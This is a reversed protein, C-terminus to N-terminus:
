TFIKKVYNIALKKTFVNRRKFYSNKEVFYKCHPLTVYKGSSFIGKARSLLRKDSYNCLQKKCFVSDQSLFTYM